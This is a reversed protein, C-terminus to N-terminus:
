AEAAKKMQTPNAEIKPLKPQAQRARRLRNREQRAALEELTLQKKRPRQEPNDGSNETTEWKELKQDNV